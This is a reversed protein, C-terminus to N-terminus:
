LKEPPIIIPHAGRSDFVITSGSIISHKQYQKKTLFFEEDEADRRRLLDKTIEEAEKTREGVKCGPCESIILESGDLMFPYTRCIHPRNQYITCRNNKLFMCNGDAGRRIVWGFTISADTETIWEPYPEAIENWALGAADMITQIESPTVMVENDDGSCCAGCCLCHFGAEEVCTRILATEDM